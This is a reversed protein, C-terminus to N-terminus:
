SALVGHDYNMPTHPALLTSLCLLREKVIYVYLNQGSGVRRSFSDVQLTRVKHHIVVQRPVRVTYLLTEPTDVSDSLGFDAM